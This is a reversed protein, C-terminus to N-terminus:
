GPVRDPFRIVFQNLATAWDWIPRTWRKAVRNLALYFVKLISDDNPFAGCNKLVKRLSDNLSEIANTTYVVKRIAPPYGFFVTLREWDAGWSPAIAPYQDDWRECFAALVSGAMRPPM